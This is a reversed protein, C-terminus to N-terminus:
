RRRRPCLVAVVGGVREAIEDEVHDAQEPQRGGGDEDVPVGVGRMRQQELPQLGIQLGLAADREELVAIVHDRAEDLVAYGDLLGPFPVALAADGRDEGVFISWLPASPLPATLTASIRSRM